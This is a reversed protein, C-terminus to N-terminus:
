LVDEHIRFLTGLRTIELVHRVEASINYLHVERGSRTLSALMGLVISPIYQIDSLDIALAKGDHLTMLEDIEERCEVISDPDFVEDGFGIVVMPDTEYVRLVEHRISM